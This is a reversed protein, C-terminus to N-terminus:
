YDVTVDFTGSYTGDPTNSAVTIAGGLDLTYGTSGSTGLNVTAPKDVTLTLQSTGDNQNTLTVDGATIKVVQNNTGTITYQATQHANSCTVNTNVCSFAGAKDIGVTAGTWTGTGSLVITGLDLDRAWALTLPKVIRATATANKNNTPAVAFAPTATLALGAVTAALTSIRLVKHM